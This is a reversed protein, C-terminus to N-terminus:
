EMLGLTGKKYAPNQLTGKVERFHYKHIIYGIEMPLIQFIPLNKIQLLLWFHFSLQKCYVQLYPLKCIILIVIGLPVLTTLHKSSLIRLNPNLLFCEVSYQHCKQINPMKSILIFDIYGNCTVALIAFMHTYETLSHAGHAANYNTVHSELITLLDQHLELYPAKRSFKWTSFM